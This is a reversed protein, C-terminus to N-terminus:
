RLIRDKLQRGIQRFRDELREGDAGGQANSLPDSVTWVLNHVDGQVRLTSLSNLDIPLDDLLGHTEKAIKQALMDIKLQYDVQGGFSTWGVLVVPVRSVNVTLNKSSVRGDGIEFESTISGVRESSSVHTARALSAVFSSGELSIPQVVMKGQGRATHALEESSGCRGKLYLELKLRGDVSPPANALVPAVYGLAKIGPGLRVGNINITGDVVPGALARDLTGSLEFAGGNLQGTARSIAASKPQWTGEAAV